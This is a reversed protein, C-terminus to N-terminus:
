TTSDNKELANRGKGVLRKARGQKGGGDDTILTGEKELLNYQLLVERLTEMSVKSCNTAAVRCALIARSFNDRIVHLYCKSGNATKFITVDLHLMKLPADARLAQYQSKKKRKLRTIDLLRCYKYFCSISCHLLGDRMLQYYVSALPWHLYDTSNAAEKIVTVEAATLQGPHTRRCLDLLSSQCVKRSGWAAWQHESFPMWKWLRNSPINRQLLKMCTEATPKIKLYHGADLPLLQVITKYLVLLYAMTRLLKKLRQIEALAQVLPISEHDYIEAGTPPVWYKTAELKRWRARNSKPILKYQEKEIAGAALQLKLGTCYKRYNKEPLPL